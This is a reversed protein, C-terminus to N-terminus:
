ANESVSHRWIQENGDLATEAAEDRTAHLRRALAQARTNNPDIYSVLSPLEHAAAFDRAARAAKCAAGTGEAAIRFLFGLEPERDGPEFGVLVFGLIEGDRTVTWVGHGRRVWTATMLAFDTWAEERSLPGGVFNGRDSCVIEAYAHFDEARPARLMLDEIALTPIQAAIRGALARVPGAPPTEHPHLRM